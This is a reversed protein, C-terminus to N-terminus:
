NGGYTYTTQRNSQSQDNSGRAVSGGTQLQDTESGTSNQNTNQQLYYPEYQGSGLGDSADRVRAQLARKVYIQMAVIAGIVISIVIAFEATSQAMKNLRRFM